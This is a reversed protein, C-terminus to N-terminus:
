SDHFWCIYFCSQSGCYKRLQGHLEQYLASRAHTLGQPGQYLFLCVFSWNREFHCIGWLKRGKRYTKRSTRHFACHYVLYWTPDIGYMFENSMRNNGRCQWSFHNTDGNYKVQERNVWYFDRSRKRSQVRSGSLQLMLQSGSSSGERLKCRLPHSASLVLM